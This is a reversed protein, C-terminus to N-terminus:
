VKVSVHKLATTIYYTQEQVSGDPTPRVFKTENGDRVLLEAIASVV